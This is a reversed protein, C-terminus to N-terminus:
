DVKDQFERIFNETMPIRYVTEGKESELIM